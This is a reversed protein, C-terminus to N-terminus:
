KGIEKWKFLRLGHIEDFLMSMGYMPEILVIGKGVIPKDCMECNM